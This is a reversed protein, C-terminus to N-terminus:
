EESWDDEDLYAWGDEYGESWEAIDEDPESDWSPTEEDEDEEYAGEGFHWELISKADKEPLEEIEWSKLYTIEKDAGSELISVTSSEPSVVENYDDFEGSKIYGEVLTKAKTADEERVYFDCKVLMPVVVKYVKDTM